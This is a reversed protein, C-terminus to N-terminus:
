SSNNIFRSFTYFAFFIDILLLGSFHEDCNRLAWRSKKLNSKKQGTSLVFGGSEENVTM